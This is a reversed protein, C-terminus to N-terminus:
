EEVPLPDMCRSQQEELYDLHVYDVLEHEGIDGGCNRCIM